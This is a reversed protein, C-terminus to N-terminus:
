GELSKKIAIALKDMDCDKGYVWSDLEKKIAEKIKGEDIRIPEPVELNGVEKIANNYIDMAKWWGKDYLTIPEPFKVGELRLRDILKM